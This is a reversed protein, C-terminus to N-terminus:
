FERDTTGSETVPTTSCVLGDSTRVLSTPTWSMSGTGTDANLYPTSSPTGLTVTVVTVQKNNVTQTSAVMTSGSFTVVRGYDVYSQAFSVTGLNTGTFSLNDRNANTSGSAAKDYFTPAFTTSAGNWGTKITAPSVVDSYTLVLKDGLAPLGSSAVDVSQVDLARPPTNDILVTVTASTTVAGAGDTMVARIDYSGTVV